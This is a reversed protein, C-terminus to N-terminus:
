ERASPQFAEIGLRLRILAPARNLLPTKQVRETPEKERLEFRGIERAIEPASTIFAVVVSSDVRLCLGEKLFLVARARIGM